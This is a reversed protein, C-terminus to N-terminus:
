ALRPMAGSSSSSVHHAQMEHEARHAVIFQSSDRSFDRRLDQLESISWSISLTRSWAKPPIRLRCLESRCEGRAVEQFVEAISPTPRLNGLFRIKRPCGSPTYTAKPALSLSRLASRAVPLRFHSRPLHRTHRTPLASRPEARLAAPSDGERSPSCLGRSQRPKQLPRNKAGSCGSRKAPCVVKEDIQDIKKRLVDVSENRSLSLRVPACWVLSIAKAGDVYGIKIVLSNCINSRGDQSCAPGAAIRNIRHM